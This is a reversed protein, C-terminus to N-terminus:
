GNVDWEWVPMGESQILGGVTEHTFGASQMLGAFAQIVRAGDADWPLTATYKNGHSEYTLRLPEYIRDNM